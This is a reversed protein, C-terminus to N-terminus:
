GQVGYREVALYMSSLGVLACVITGIAIWLVLREPNVESWRRAIAILVLVFWIVFTEIPITAATWRQEFAVAVPVIAFVIGWAVLFRAGVPSIPWPWHEIVLEPLVFLTVMTLAIVTGVTACLYRIPRPIIRHDLPQGGDTQGNYWWLVPLLIATIVHLGIWLWTMPHGVHLVDWHYVTAIGMALASVAIGPFLVHVRHWRNVTVIRVFVYAVAGYGAGVVLPTLESAISVAFYTSTYGPVFYLSLFM